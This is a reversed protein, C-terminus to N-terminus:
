SRHKKRAKRKGATRTPPAPKPYRDPGDKPPRWDLCHLTVPADGPAFRPVKARSRAARDMAAFAVEPDDWEVRVKGLPVSVGLLDVSGFPDIEIAFSERPGGSPLQVPARLTATMSMRTKYEGTRCISYLKEIAPLDSDQLGGALSFRGFRTIRSEIYALKKVAKEWLRLEEVTRGQGSSPMAAQGVTTGNPLMMSVAGGEGLAILFRTAQLTQAVSDVPHDVALNVDLNVAKQSGLDPLVLTVHFPGKEHANTFTSAKLGAKTRRLEVPVSEVRDPSSAVLQIPLSVQSSASSITLSHPIRKGYAREWWESTQFATIYKGSITAADGEEIARRLKDAQERGKRTNPFRFSPSLRVEKGKGLLPMFHHAVTVRLRDRGADTTNNKTPISVRASKQRRWARKQADLKSIAARVDIWCGRRRVVDWVMLVVPVTSAEWHLLDSVAVDYRVSNTKRETLKGLDATSKAQLYFSLGTSKGDDYIQVVHDEGLDESLRNFLWGDFREAIQSLSKLEQQKEVTLRRGTSRHEESRRNKAM